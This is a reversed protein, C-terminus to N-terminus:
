IQGSFPAGARAQLGCARMREYAVSRISREFGLAGPHWESGDFGYYRAMSLGLGGEDFSQETERWWTCTIAESEEFRDIRGSTDSDFRALFEKRVRDHWATSGGDPLGGLGARELLRTTARGTKEPAISDALDGMDFPTPAPPPPPALADADFGLDLRRARPTAEREPLLLAMREVKSDAVIRVQEVWRRFGDREVTIEHEGVGLVHAVEGPAGVLEGDIRLRSEPVNSRVVLRGEGTCLTPAFRHVTGPALYVSRTWAEPCGPRRVELAYRGRDLEVVAGEARMEAVLTTRDADLVRLTAEPLPGELELRPRHSLALPSPGTERDEADNGAAHFFLAALAVFTGLLAGLLPLRDPRRTAPRPRVAELREIEERLAARESERLDPKAQRARLAAVLRDIAAAVAPESANAPLDLIRTLRARRSASSRSMPHLSARGM